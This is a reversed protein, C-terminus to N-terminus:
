RLVHLNIILAIPIVMILIHIIEIPQFNKFLIWIIFCTQTKSYKLMFVCMLRKPINRNKLMTRFISFTVTQTEVKCLCDNQRQSKFHSVANNRETKRVIFRVAVAQNNIYEKVQRSLRWLKHEQCNAHSPSKYGLSCCYYWLRIDINCM